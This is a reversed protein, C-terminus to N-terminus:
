YIALFDLIPQRLRDMAAEWGAQTPHMYDWFFFDEPNPCISYQAKGNADEQGCYGEPKQTADCCPMYGGKFETSQILDSFTSDIDLFLADELEDLKNRLADNHMSSLRNAQSDCEAYNKLWTRYPQCGIPSMSNVLVKSVGLDQLRKVADAIMDTVKGAVAMIDDSPAAVSLGAYDYGGSFGILAVSDQLDEENIIGLRVLRRFQDIQDGLGGATAVGSGAMAFNVGSPDVQNPKRLRYAPPSEDQGLMRALIDSQVLGNSLRGTARNAHASDSSGYPYFWQRSRGTKDTTPPRNGADVFSDGFVFMMSDDKRRRVPRSEVVHQHDNIIIVILLFCILYIKKMNALKSM